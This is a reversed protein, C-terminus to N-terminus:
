LPLYKQETYSTDTRVIGGIVVMSIHKISMLDNVGFWAVLAGAASLM